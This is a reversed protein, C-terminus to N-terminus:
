IEKPNYYGLLMAKEPIGVENELSYKHIFDELCSLKIANRIAKLYIQTINCPVSSGFAAKKNEDLYLTYWGDQKEYLYMSNKKLNEDICIYKSDYGNECLIKEIDHFRMNEFSLIRSGYKKTIENYKNLYKSSLLSFIFFKYALQENEFTRLIKIEPHTVREHRIYIYNYINGDKEMGKADQDQGVVEKIVGDQVSIEINEKHLINKWENINM